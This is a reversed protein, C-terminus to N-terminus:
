RNRYYAALDGLTRIRGAYQPNQSVFQAVRDRGQAELAQRVGTSERLRNVGFMENSFNALQQPDGRSLRIGFDGMAQAAHALQGGLQSQSLSDVPRARVGIPDGTGGGGGGTGGGGGGVGQLYDMQQAAARAAAARARAAEEQAAQQQYQWQLLGLQNQWDQSMQGSMNDMQTGYYGQISQNAGIRSGLRGLSGGIAALKAAPSMDAAGTGMKALPEFLAPLYQSELGAREEVLPRLVPAEYAKAIEQQYNPMQGMSQIQGMLEQSTAM